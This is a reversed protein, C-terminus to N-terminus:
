DMWRHRWRASSSSQPAALSLGILLGVALGLGLAIAVSELPHEAVSRLSRDYGAWTQEAIAERAAGLSGPQASARRDEFGKEFAGDPACCEDFFAEVQEQNQGSKQQVLEALKNMDGRVRALETGSLKGYKQEVATVLANWKGTLEQQPNM